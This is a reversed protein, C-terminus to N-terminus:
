AHSREHDLLFLITSPHVQGFENVSLGWQQGCKGCAIWWPGNPRKRMPFRRKFARRMELPTM